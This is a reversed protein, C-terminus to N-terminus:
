PPPRPALVRPTMTPAQRLGRALEQRSRLHSDSERRCDPRDSRKPAPPLHARALPRWRESIREARRACHGAAPARHFAIPCDAANRVAGMEASICGVVDTGTHRSKASIVTWAGADEVLAIVDVDLLAAVAADGIM